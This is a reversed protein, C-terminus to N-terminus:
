LKLDDLGLTLIPNSAVDGPPAAPVPSSTGLEIGDSIAM